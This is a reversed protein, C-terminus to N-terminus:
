DPQGVCPRPKAYKADDESTLDLVYALTRLSVGFSGDNKPILLDAVVLYQLAAICRASQGQLWGLHVLDIITFQSWGVRRLAWCLNLADDKVIQPPDM